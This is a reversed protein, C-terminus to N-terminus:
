AHPRSSTGETVAFSVLFVHASGIAVLRDVASGDDQTASAACVVSVVPEAFTGLAQTAVSDSAAGDAREPDIFEM